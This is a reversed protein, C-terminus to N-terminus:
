IPCSSDSTWDVYYWDGSIPGLTLYVPDGEATIVLNSTNESSLNEMTLEPFLYRAEPPLEPQGNQIRIVMGDEFMTKGNYKGDSVQDRLMFCMMKVNDEIKNFFWASLAETQSEYAQITRSVSEAKFRGDKQVDIDYLYREGFYLIGAFGALFVLSILITKKLKDKLDAM